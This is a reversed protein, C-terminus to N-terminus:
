KCRRSLYRGRVNGRATKADHRAEFRLWTLSYAAFALTSAQGKSMAAFYITAATSLALAAVVINAKRPASASETPCTPKAIARSYALSVFCWGLVEVTIQFPFLNM